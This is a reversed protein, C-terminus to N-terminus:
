FEDEDDKTLQDFLTLQGDDINKNRIFDVLDNKRIKRAHVEPEFSMETIDVEKIESVRTGLKFFRIPIGKLKALAIEFLVGDAISGFVWLEKCSQILQNNGQRVLDRDVRDNLFYGFVMFPNVPLKGQKLVFECIVDKCYFFNKSQATFVLDMSQSNSVKIGLKEIGMEIQKKHRDEMENACYIGSVLAATLGRFEGTIDGAVWIDPQIMLNSNSVSYKGAYEIEPGYVRGTMLSESTIDIISKVKEKLLKDSKEGIYTQTGNIFENLSVDFYDSNRSIKKEMEDYYLNDTSSARILLGINSKGTEFQTKAGNFTTYEDFESRIVMGDKCCCFTRFEVGNEVKDIIKYDPNPSTYPKFQKSATEVRIGLEIKNITRDCDSIGQSKLLENGFKGTAIIINRAHFKEKENGSIEYYDKVKEITSVCYNTKIRGANEDYFFNLIRSRMFNNLVISNYNKNGSVNNKIRTWNDDWQEFSLGLEVLIASLQQYAIKLKNENLKTWLNSASPAFSLKGDSFLGCGGVGSSVDVANNSNREILDKGKELILYRKGKTSLAAGAALGAPGGGIIITDYIHLM